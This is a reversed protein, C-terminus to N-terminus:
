KFSFEFSEVEGNKKLIYYAKMFNTLYNVDVFLEYHEYNEEDTETEKYEVFGIRDKIKLISDDKIEVIFTDIIDDLQKQNEIKGKEGVKEQFIMVLKDFDYINNDSLFRKFVRYKSEEKEEDNTKLDNINYKEYPNLTFVVAIDKIKLPFPKNFYDNLLNEGENENKSNITLISGVQSKVNNLIYIMQMKAYQSNKQGLYEQTDALNKLILISLSAIFFLSLLLIIAKKM